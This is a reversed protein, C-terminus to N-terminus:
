GRAMAECIAIAERAGAGIADCCHVVWRTVGETTGVRYADLADAYEEGLERHGAEVV